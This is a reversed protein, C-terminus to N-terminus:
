EKTRPRFCSSWCSITFRRGDDRRTSGSRSGDRGRGLVWQRLFNFKWRSRKPSLPYLDEDQGKIARRESGSLEEQTYQPQYDQGGMRSQEGQSVEAQLEESGRSGSTHADLYPYDELITPLPPQTEEAKELGTKGIEKSRSKRKLQLGSGRLGVMMLFLRDLIRHHHVAVLSRNAKQRGLCKVM